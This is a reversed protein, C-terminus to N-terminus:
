DSNAAQNQALVAIIIVLGKIIQQPYSAVSLLNLTNEILQLVLVGIVTNVVTGRGGVLSAGGIVCAAIADLEYGDGSIPTGTSARSTIIAGAMASTFGSICYALMKYRIVSIGALRVAKENSGVAIIIRGASTYKMIFFFAIIVIVGLLIPWPLDIGPMSKNGFGTLLAIGPMKTNLRIPQGNTVLYACGRAIQSTALTVIFPAMKGFTILVGSFAGMFIGLILSILICLFLGGETNGMWKDLMQAVLMNSLGMVSGTALDIGGTLIVCLMGMSMVLLPVSQRLLNFINQKTFFVKSLLASLIILLVLIVFCSNKIWFDKSKFKELKLGTAQM